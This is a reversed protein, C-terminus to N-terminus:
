YHCTYCDISAGRQRHCEVCWGMKMSSAREVVPMEAVQGHCEHCAVGGRVHAEHNFKVFAPQVHVKVWPIQEEKNYFELLKKIEADWEPKNSAQVQNHCNMCSEVSPLAAYPSKDVSWHCYSCDMKLKQVHVVHSFKIPQEPRYGRAREVAGFLRFYDIIHFDWPAAKGDNFVGTFKGVTPYGEYRDLKDLPTKFEVELDKEPLQAQIDTGQTQVRSVLLMLLM